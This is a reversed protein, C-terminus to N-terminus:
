RIQGGLGFLHGEATHTERDLDCSRIKAPGALVCHQGCVSLSTNNVYQSSGVQDNSDIKTIRWDILKKRQFVGYLLSKSKRNWFIKWKIVGCLM